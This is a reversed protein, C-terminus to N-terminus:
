NGLTETSKADAIKERARKQDIRKEFMMEHAIAWDRARYVFERERATLNQIAPIMM